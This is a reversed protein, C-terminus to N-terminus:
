FMGVVKGGATIIDTLKDYDIIKARVDLESDKLGRLRKDDDVVYVASPFSGLRGKQALYVGNQLLILDAGGDKALTLGRAGDTTDPASKIIVLM